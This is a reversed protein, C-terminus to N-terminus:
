NRSLVFWCAIGWAASIALMPWDRVLAETPSEADKLSDSLAKFRWIGLAVLPITFALEQRVQMAFFAYGVLAGLAAILAIADILKSSYGHISKRSTALLLRVENRRKMSALYLALFFTDIVIWSTLPVSIIAAGAWIRSVFGLSIVCLDVVPVARLGMNYLVNIILYSAVPALLTPWAILSVLVVLALTALLQMALKRSVQGSAIPRKVSKIPHARDAEEDLLDNLIYVSSACVCFVVFAVTAMTVSYFDSFRSSFLLPAFVFLNKAWQQPRLLRV